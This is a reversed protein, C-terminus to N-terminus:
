GRITISIYLSSVGRIRGSKLGILADQNSPFSEVPNM